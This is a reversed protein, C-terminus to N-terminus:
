SVTGHITLAHNRLHMRHALTMKCLKCELAEGEKVHKLHKRKFHKSLDSPSSFSYLRVKLPLDEGLCLFCIKPRKETYVSLMAAKLAEDELSLSDEKKIVVAKVRGGSRKRGGCIDGEEIKCYATVANVADDRRQREEEITAGPPALIMTEILRRQEPLTDESFYSVIKPEKSVKLGALQREIVRVPGEREYKEQIEKLLAARLREKENAIRRVLVKYKPHETAKQKLRQSLKERRRTLSRIIPDNNVSEAQEATLGWPRDPDIWRSMNCASRMVSEQPALERIIAQTDATVRRHLYHKLFTEIDAHQMMFNQLAESVKGILVILILV